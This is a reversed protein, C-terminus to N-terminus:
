RFDFAMKRERTCIRESVEYLLQIENSFGLFDKLKLGISKILNLDDSKKLWLAIRDGKVRLSVVAGNISRSLDAGFADGILLLM